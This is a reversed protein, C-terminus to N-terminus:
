QSIPIASIEGQLAHLVVTYDQFFLLFTQKKKLNQLHLYISWKCDSKM